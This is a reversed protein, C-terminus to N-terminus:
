AIVGALRALSSWLAHGERDNADWAGAAKCKATNGFGPRALKERLEEVTWGSVYACGEIDLNDTRWTLEPMNEPRKMNTM